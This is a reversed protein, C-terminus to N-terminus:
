GTPAGSRPERNERYYSTQVWARRERALFRHSIAWISGQEAIQLMDRSDGVTREPIELRKAMADLGPNRGSYHSEGLIPAPHCIREGLSPPIACLMEHRLLPPVSSKGAEGGSGNTTMVLLGNGHCMVTYKESIRNTAFGAIGASTENEGYGWDSSV